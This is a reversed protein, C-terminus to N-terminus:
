AKVEMDVSYTHKGNPTEIPKSYDGDVFVAVARPTQPYNQTVGNGEFEIRYVGDKEFQIFHGFNRGTPNHLAFGGGRNYDRPIIDAKTVDVKVPPKGPGVSPFAKPNDLRKMGIGTAEVLWNFGERMTAVRRKTVWDTKGVAKEASELHGKMARLMPVPFSGPKLRYTYGGGHLGINNAIQYDEAAKYYALMAPAAAGFHATFFEELMAEPTVDPNWMARPYAYFNWPSHRIMEPFGQCNGALAGLDRRFQAWKVFSTVLPLPMPWQSGDENLLDYGYNELRGCKEAWERYYKVM